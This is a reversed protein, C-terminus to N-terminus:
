FALENLKSITTKFYIALQKLIINLSKKPEPQRPSNDTKIRPKGKNKQMKETYKKWVV